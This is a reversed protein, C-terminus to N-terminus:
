ASLCLASTGSLGAAVLGEHVTQGADLADRAIARIDGDVLKAVILASVKGKRGKQKLLKEVRSLLAMLGPEDNGLDLKAQDIAAHIVDDEYGKRWLEARVAQDPSASVMEEAGPADRRQPTSISIRVQSSLEDTTKDYAAHFDALDEYKNIRDPDGSRLADVFGKVPQFDRNAVERIFDPEIAESQAPNSESRLILRMQVRMILKVALDIVGQTEDYIIDRLNKDLITEQKTWRYQWLDDLFDNWDEAGREYNKWAEGFNGVSRRAMRATREFLNSAKMTGVFLVPVGITNAMTVLFTLLAHDDDGGQPLHQIEDVVLCGLGHFRAVLAMNHLMTEETAHQGAYLRTYTDEGLLEDVKGFFSVCLGRLSGKAPADLRLYTIQPPLGIHEIIQPYTRLVERVTLTKGMGPRGMLLGCDAGDNIDLRGGRTMLNGARAHQAVVLSTAEHRGNSPDRGVYGDYLMMGFEQAFSIHRRGPRFYGKLRRVCHRRMVPPLELNSPDWSPPRSLTRFLERQEEIPPLGAIYANNEHEPLRM